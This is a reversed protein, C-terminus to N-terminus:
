MTRQTQEKNLETWLLLRFLADSVVQPGVGSVFVPACAAEPGSKSAFKQKPWPSPFNALVVKRFM